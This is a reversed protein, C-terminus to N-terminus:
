KHVPDVVVNDLLMLPPVQLLLLVEAAVTFEAVPTTVPTEAPLEVM